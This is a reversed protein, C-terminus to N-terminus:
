GSGSTKRTPVTIYRKARQAELTPWVPRRHVAWEPATLRQAPARHRPMRGSNVESVLVQCSRIRRRLRFEYCAACHSPPGVRCQHAGQAFEDLAAHDGTMWDVSAFSLVSWSRRGARCVNCLGQNNFCPESAYRGVVDPPGGQFRSAAVPEIRAAICGTNRGDGLWSPIACRGIGRGQLECHGGVCQLRLASGASLLISAM